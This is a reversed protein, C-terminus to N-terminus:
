KEVTALLRRAEKLRGQLVPLVKGAQGKVAVSGPGALCRRALYIFGEVDHVLYKLFARDFAQGRLKGLRASAARRGKQENFFVPVDNNRALWAMNRHLPRQVEIVKRAFKRVDKSKARTRALECARVETAGHLIALAMYDDDALPRPPGALRLVGVSLVAAVVLAPQTM